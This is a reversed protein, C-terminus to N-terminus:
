PTSVGSAKVGIKLPGVEHLSKRVPEPEMRNLPRVTDAPKITLAAPPMPATHARVTVQNVVCTCFKAHAQDTGGDNVADDVMASMQGAVQAHDPGGDIGEGAEGGV